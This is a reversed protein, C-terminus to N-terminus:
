ATKAQLSNTKRTAVLRARRSGRQWPLAPTEEQATKLISKIWRKQTKPKM